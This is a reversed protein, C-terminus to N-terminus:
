LTTTASVTYIIYITAVVIIVVIVCSISSLGKQPALCQGGQTIHAYLTNLGGMERILFSLGLSPLSHALVCTGTVATM